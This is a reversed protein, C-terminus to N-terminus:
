WMRHFDRCRSSRACAIICDALASWYNQLRCCLCGVWVVWMVRAWGCICPEPSTLKKSAYYTRYITYM